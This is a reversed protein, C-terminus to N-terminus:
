LIRIDAASRDLLWQNLPTEDDLTEQDFDNPPKPKGRPLADPSDECTPDIPLILCIVGDDEEVVEWFRPKTPPTQFVETKSGRAPCFAYQHYILCEVMKTQQGNIRQM